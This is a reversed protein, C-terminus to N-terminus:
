FKFLNNGGNTEADQASNRENPPASAFNSRIVPPWRPRGSYYMLPPNLPPPPVSPNFFPVQPLGGFVATQVPRSQTSASAVSPLRYPQRRAPIVKRPTSHLADKMRHRLTEVNNKTNMRKEFTKHRDISSRKRSDKKLGSKFRREEEDDSFEQFEAPVESDDVWSADSGKMRFSIETLKM